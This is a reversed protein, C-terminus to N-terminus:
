ASRWRARRPRSACASASPAASAPSSRAAADLEKTRAKDNRMEKDMFVAVRAFGVPDIGVCFHCGKSATRALVLGGDASLSSKRPPSSAARRRRGRAEPRRLRDDRDRQRRRGGSALEVQDKSTLLPRADELDNAMNKPLGLTFLEGEVAGSKIGKDKLTVTFSAEKKDGGLANFATVASGATTLIDHAAKRAAAEDKVDAAILLTAEGKPGPYIAFVVDNQVQDLVTHSASIVSRVPAEFAGGLQGAQKAANDVMKHLLEPSGWPMAVVIAAGGPLRGELATTQTRAAGLPSLGLREFPADAALELTLDRDTGADLEFSARTAQQLVASVQRRLGPPLMGVSDASLLGAPLDAAHVKLRRGGASSKALAGARELDPQTLAFELSKPQERLLMRLDGHLLEWM